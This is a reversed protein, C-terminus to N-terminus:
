EGTYVYPKDYKGINIATYWGVDFYDSQSDSRDHNGENMADHVERLFDRAKGTHDRDISYVNVQEYGRALEFDVPGKTVTLVLTSNHRVSLTGSMGYKKLIAKVKPSISAKNEQSMYAM